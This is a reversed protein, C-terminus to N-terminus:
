ERLFCLFLIIYFISLMLCHSVCIFFENKIVDVVYNPFFTNLIIGKIEFFECCIYILIPIIVCITNDMIKSIVLSILSFVISILLIVVYGKIYELTLIFNKNLLLNILLYTIFSLFVFSVISLLVTFIKSLYYISHNKMNIVFLVKYNDNASIIFNNMLFCALIVSIIKNFSYISEWSYSQQDVLNLNLTMNSMVVSSTTLITILLCGVISIINRKSLFYVLHLKFLKAM